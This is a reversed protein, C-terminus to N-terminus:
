KYYNELRIKIKCISTILCCFLHVLFLCLYHLFLLLVNSVTGKWIPFHHSDFAISQLIPFSFLIQHKVGSIKLDFIDTESYSDNQYKVFKILANYMGYLKDNLNGHVYCFNKLYSKLVDIDPCNFKVKNRIQVLLLPLQGLLSNM